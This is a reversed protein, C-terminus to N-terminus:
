AEDIGRKIERLTKQANNDMNSIVMEGHPTELSISWYKDRYGGCQAHITVQNTFDSKDLESHAHNINRDEENLLRRETTRVKTFRSTHQRRISLWNTREQV